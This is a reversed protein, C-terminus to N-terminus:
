TFFLSTWCIKLKLTNPVIKFIAERKWENIETLQFSHMANLISDFQFQRLPLNIIKLCTQQDYLPLDRHFALWLWLEVRNLRLKISFQERRDVIAILISVNHADCRVNTM